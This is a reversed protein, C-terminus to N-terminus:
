FDDILSSTPSTWADMSSEQTILKKTNIEETNTLTIVLEVPEPQTTKQNMMFYFSIALLVSAAISWRIINRTKSPHKKAHLSDFDPIELKQDAQQMGAFFDKLEDESKKM